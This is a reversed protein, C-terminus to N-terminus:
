LEVWAVENPNIVIKKNLVITPRIALTTVDDLSYSFIMSNKNGPVSGCIPIDSGLNVVGLVANPISSALWYSDSIDESGDSNLDTRKISNVCFIGDQNEFLTRCVNNLIDCANKRGREGLLRLENRTVVQAKYKPFSIEESVRVMGVYRFPVEIPLDESTFIQRRHWGSKNPYVVYSPTARRTIVITEDVGEPIIPKAIYM